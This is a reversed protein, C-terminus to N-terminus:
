AKVEAAEEKRERYIPLKWAELLASADARKRPELLAMDVAVDDPNVLRWLYQRGGCGIRATHEAVIEGNERLNLLAAEVSSKTMSLEQRLTTSAAPGSVALFARVRATNPHNM